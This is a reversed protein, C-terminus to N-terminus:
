AGSCSPRRGKVTAVPRGSTARYGSCTALSSPGHRQMQEGESTVGDRRCVYIAM